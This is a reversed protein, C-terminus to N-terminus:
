FYIKVLPNVRIIKSKPGGKPNKIDQINLIHKRSLEDLVMDLSKGKKIGKWNKQYLDRLRMRDYIDGSMIKEIITQMTGDKEYSKNLSYLRRAHSELYEGWVIAMELSELDVESSRFDKVLQFILALKPILADYKLLTSALLIDSENKGKLELFWLAYRKQAKDSFKLTKNSEDEIYDIEEFITSVDFYAKQNEPRDIFQENEIPDPFTMLQFRQLLGDNHSETERVIKRIIDPQTASIISLCLNNVTDTGRSLTDKRFSGNGNYAELYFERAGEYGKKHFQALFGYLEDRVITLGNPNYELLKLLKELSAENVIYRKPPKELDAIKKKISTIEKFVQDDCEESLEKELQKLKSRFLKIQTDNIFHDARGANLKSKECGELFRIGSKLSASKKSGSSNVSVAWLNPVIRWSSDNQKPQISIKRGIVAGFSAVLPIAVMDPKICLRESVDKVYEHLSKPLMDDSFPLVDPLKTPKTLSNKINTFYKEINDNSYDIDMQSLDNYDISKSNEPIDLEPYHLVVEYGLNNYHEIAKSAYLEGTFSRDKDVYIHVELYEDTSPIDLLLNSATLTAYVRHSLKNSLTLANELGETLILREKSQNGQTIFVSKKAVGKKISKIKKLDSDLYTIQIGVQERTKIDLLPIYFTLKNNEYKYISENKDLYINRSLFYKKISSLDDPKNKILASVDINSDVCEFSESSSERDLGLANKIDQYECGSHCYLLVNKNEEKISLSPNNDEHAPCHGIYGSRTKKANTKAIIESIM